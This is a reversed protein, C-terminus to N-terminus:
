PPTIQYDRLIAKMADVWEDLQGEAIIVVDDRDLLDPYKVKLASLLQPTPYVLTHDALDITGEKVERVEGEQEEMGVRLATAAGIAPVIILTHGLRAICKGIYQLCATEYDTLSGKGIFGIARSKPQARGAHRAVTGTPKRQLRKPRVM